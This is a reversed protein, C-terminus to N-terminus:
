TKCATVDESRRVQPPELQSAVLALTDTRRRGDGCYTRRPRDVITRASAIDPLFNGSSRNGSFSQMVSTAPERFRQSGTRQDDFGSRLRHWNLM